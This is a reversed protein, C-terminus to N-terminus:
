NIPRLYAIGFEISNVSNGIGYGPNSGNEGASVNVQIGTTTKSLSFSLGSYYKKLEEKEVVGGTAFQKNVDVAVVSMAKAIDKTTINNLNVGAGASGAIVTYVNGAKDVAYGCTISGGLFKKAGLNGGITYMRIENDKWGTKDIGNTMFEIIENERSNAVASLDGSVTFGKFEGNEDLDIGWEFGEGSAEGLDGALTQEDSLKKYKEKVEKEKEADGKCAELEAQYDAYQKHTLYNYKAENTGIAAGTQFSGSILKTATGSIVYSMLQHVLPDKIDKLFNEALQAIAAGTLGSMADAGGLKAIFAGAAADLAIKEPSGEKLGLDGIANFITKSFLGFFEQREQVEQADFIKGLANM